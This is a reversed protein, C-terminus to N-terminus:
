QDLWLYVAKNIAERDLMWNDAQRLELSKAYEDDMNWRNFYFRAGPRESLVIDSLGRMQEVKQLPLDEAIHM